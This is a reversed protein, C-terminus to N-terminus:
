HFYNALIIQKPFIDIPTFKCSIPLSALKQTLSQLPFGKQPSTTRAFHAGSAWFLNCRFARGSHPFPTEDESSVSHGLSPYAWIKVGLM